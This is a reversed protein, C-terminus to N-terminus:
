DTGVKQSLDFAITNRDLRNIFQFCSLYILEGTKMYLEAASSQDYEEKQILTRDKSLMIEGSEQLRDLILM